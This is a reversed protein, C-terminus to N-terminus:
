INNKIKFNLNIINNYKYSKINNISNNFKIDMFDIFLIKM